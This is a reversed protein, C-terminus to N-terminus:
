RPFYSMSLMWLLPLLFFPIYPFMSKEEAQSMPLGTAQLGTEEQDLLFLIPPFPTPHPHQPQESEQSSNTARIIHVPSPSHSWM